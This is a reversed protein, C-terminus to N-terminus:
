TASKSIDEKTRFFLAGNHVYRCARNISLPTPLGQKSQTRLGGEADISFNTTGITQSLVWLRTITNRADFGGAFVMALDPYAEKIQNYLPAVRNIRFIKKKGGSPDILAYDILAVYPSLRAVINAPDREALVRPGLQLIIKLDPFTMKTREVENVPPWKINLQVGECLRDAYLNSQDLLQELQQSLASEYYTHYHLTKFARNHTIRFIQHIQDLNPYKVRGKFNPILSRESALVGVMGRHSSQEDTLGEDIFTQAIVTAEHTNTIGTVGIYPKEGLRDM